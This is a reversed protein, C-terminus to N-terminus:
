ETPPSDRTGSVMYIPGLDKTNTIKGKPLKEVIVAVNKNWRRM